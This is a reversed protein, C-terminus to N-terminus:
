VAPKSTDSVQARPSNKLKGMEEAIKVAEPDGVSLHDMISQFNYASHNQSLKFIADVSKVEIEFAVIAKSLKEVYDKPIHEFNAPSDPNNEFHNTTRRLINLLYDGEHFVLKGRVHVSQYNWTSAVQQNEYWSASIYTHPGTFIVLAEDSAVFAKHHDTNKMLHGSLWLKGDREDIFLPVQTAAPRRAEGVGILMAFPHARMFGLIKEQDTETFYPLSYM